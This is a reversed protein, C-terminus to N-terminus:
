IMVKFNHVKKLCLFYKTGKLINLIEFFLKKKILKKENCSIM